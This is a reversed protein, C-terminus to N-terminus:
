QTAAEASWYRMVLLTENGKTGRIKNQKYYASIFKMLDTLPQVDCCIERVSQIFDGVTMAL